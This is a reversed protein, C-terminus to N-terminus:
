VEEGNRLSCMKITDREDYLVVYIRDKIKSIVEESASVKCAEIFKQKVDGKDVFDICYHYIILESNESLLCNYINKWWWNDTEGISTGYIIFLNVDKFYSKYKQNSQVWYSKNFRNRVRDAKYDNNEVGFLLSRPINQYGHPHITDVMVFSSWVTRQDIGNKSFGNPNPYFTFNTDVTKYPRPEFQIKDLYIYNDFLSTYNFNVFLYNYMDYHYTKEPFAIREYDEQDLDGLFGCLSRRSWRNKEIDDNLKLLVDPTVIENLFLLFMSQMEKLADELESALASSQLLEGLSCEFDSWNEKGSCKDERMKKYLVNDANFGKYGLFDYFKTYSSVLNDDRYKKLVSIDFGNGIFAMINYQERIGKIQGEEKYNKFM